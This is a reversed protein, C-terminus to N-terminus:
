LPSPPPLSRLSHSPWLFTGPWTVRKVNSLFLITDMMFNTNQQVTYVWKLQHSHLQVPPCFFPTARAHSYVENCCSSKRKDQGGTWLNHCWMQFSSRLSSFCNDYHNGWPLYLQSHYFGLVIDNRNEYCHLGSNVMSVSSRYPWVESCGIWRWLATPKFRFVTTINKRTHFARTFM